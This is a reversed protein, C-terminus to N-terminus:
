LKEVCLFFFFLSFYFRTEVCFKLWWGRNWVWNDRRIWPDRALGSDDISITGSVVEDRASGSMVGPDKEMFLMWFAMQLDAAPGTAMLTKRAQGVLYPMTKVM